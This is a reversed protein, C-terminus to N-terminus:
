EILNGFYLLARNLVFLAHWNNSCIQIQNDTAYLSLSDNKAELLIGELAQHASSLAIAKIVTSIAKQLSQKDVVVKM